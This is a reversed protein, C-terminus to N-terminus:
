ASELTDDGGAWSGGDSRHRRDVEVRNAARRRERDIAWEEAVLLRAQEAPLDLIDGVRHPSVDVGDM